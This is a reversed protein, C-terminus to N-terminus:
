IFFLKFKSWSSVRIVKHYPANSEQSIKALEPSSSKDMYTDEEDKEEQIFLDQDLTEVLYLKRLAKLNYSFESYPFLFIGIIVIVIDRIGGLDGLLDLANYIERKIVTSKDDLFINLQLVEDKYQFPIQSKYDKSFDYYEYNYTWDNLINFYTDYTFLKNKRVFMDNRNPQTPNMPYM